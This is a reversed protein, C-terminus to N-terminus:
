VAVRQIFCLAYYKPMRSQTSSLAYNSYGFTHTHSGGYETNINVSHTHQGHDDDVTEEITHTHQDSTSTPGPVGSRIVETPASSTPSSSVDHGHASGTSGFTGSVAHRHTKTNTNCIDHRHRLDMTAAGGTADVAYSDGAGVVFRNRLDPTGNTGDCIQWGTPISGVAGSWIIIMGLEVKGKSWNLGTAEGSDAVLVEGNDGVGLNDLAAEGTGVALDGKAEFIDPVSAEFNAKLYTNFDDEDWEDGVEILPLTTYSM